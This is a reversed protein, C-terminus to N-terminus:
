VGTLFYKSWDSSHPSGSSWDFDGIPDTRTLKLITFDKNDYYEGKLGRTDSEDSYIRFGAECLSKPLIV